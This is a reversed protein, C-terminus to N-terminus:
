IDLMPVCNDIYDWKEDWGKEQWAANIKRWIPAPIQISESGVRVFMYSKGDIMEEYAIVGAKKDHYIDTRMPM